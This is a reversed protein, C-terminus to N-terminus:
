VNMRYIQIEDLLKKGVLKLNRYVMNFEEQIAYIKRHDNITIKM